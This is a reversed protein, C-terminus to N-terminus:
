TSRDSGLGTNAGFMLHQSELVENVRAEDIHGDTQLFGNRNSGAWSFRGQVAGAYNRWPEGGLVVAAMSLALVCLRWLGPMGAPGGQVNDSM